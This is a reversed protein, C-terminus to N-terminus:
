GSSGRERTEVVCYLGEGAMAPGFCLNDSLCKAKAHDGSKWRNILDPERILPRCMSIYDAMGEAVIKEALNYSRIGGVLILPVKIKEKFVKAEKLFYAEDKESKIGVRVPNLKGGNLMGGSLEIADIGKLALMQVVKLSDELDLGNESFDQCNMKVLVPFDPGVSNRVARLTDLLARARNEINGGYKDSRHNFSPSLFQSLLYGHASHLQVGDYGSKKARTAAQAFAKIIQSIDPITLEKCPSDSIGEM